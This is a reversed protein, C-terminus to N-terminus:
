YEVPRQQTFGKAEPGTNRLTPNQGVLESIAQEFSDRWSKGELHLIIPLTLVSKDKTTNYLFWLLGPSTRQSRLSTSM